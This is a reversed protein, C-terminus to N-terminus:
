LLPTLKTKLQTYWKSPLLLIFIPPFALTAFRAIQWLFNLPNLHFSAFLVIYSALGSLSFATAAARLRGNTSFTVLPFFWVIYWPQLLSISVLLYAIM